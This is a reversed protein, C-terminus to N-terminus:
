MILLDAQSAPLPVNQVPERTDIWAVYGGPGLEPFPRLTIQLGQRAIVTLDAGDLVQQAM